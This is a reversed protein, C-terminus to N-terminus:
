IQVAILPSSSFKQKNFGLLLFNKLESPPVHTCLCLTLREFRKNITQQLYYACSNINKFAFFIIKISIPILFISLLIFNLLLTYTYM